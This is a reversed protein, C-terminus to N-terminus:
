KMTITDDDDDDDIFRYKRSRIPHVNGRSNLKELIVELIELIELIKITHCMNVYLYVM